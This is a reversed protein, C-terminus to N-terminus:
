VWRSPAERASSFRQFHPSLRVAGAFRSPFVTFLGKRCSGAGGNRDMRGMEVRLFWTDRPGGSGPCPCGVWTHSRQRYELIFQGPWPSLALLEHQDVPIADERDNYQKFQGCFWHPFATNIRLTQEGFRRRALAAGGEGSNNSVVMAFREDEAGAWLATKGLRSHGIVAVRRGDVAPDTQLYDLARSLGWAWAGIAGWADPALETIREAAAVAERSGDVPFVSRVGDKWGDAHDPELDGYYVTALAFGRDLVRRIPWSSVETGRSAETARHDIRGEKPDNRMWRTTLPVDTERTVAHNGKFNLGLFAPVPGRAGNPVYLLLDLWPGDTRGTFWVRVQKRTAAGGLARPEVARVEFSMGRPRGPSRGYVHHRFLGLVEDRRVSRWQRASTVPRGDARTLPDPLTYAPVKAEDHNADAARAGMSALGCGMCGVVAAAGVAWIASGVRRLRRTTNM